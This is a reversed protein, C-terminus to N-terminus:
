EAGLLCGLNVLTRGDVHLSALGLVLKADADDAREAM